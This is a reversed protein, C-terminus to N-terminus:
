KIWGWAAQVSAIAVIAATEARLTLPGLSMLCTKKDKLLREETQSFDGEPGVILQCLTREDIQIEQIEKSEKSLSCCITLDKPTDRLKEILNLTDNINQHYYVKPIDLRASQKAASLAIKQWRDLKSKQKDPKIEVVSREAAWLIIHEVGLECAKEVVFDNKEGKCLAFALVNVRSKRPDVCLKGTIKIHINSQCNTIIASYREGCSKSNIHIERGESLRLVNKLHHTDSQGLEIEQDISEPPIDLFIRPIQVNIKSPTLNLDPEM